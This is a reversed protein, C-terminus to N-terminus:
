QSAGALARVAGALTQVKAGDSSRGSDGDLQSALQTLGTQRSSGSAQEAETLSKRVSSIRSGSLGNSRELQDVYARALAFSPPWVFKPQGQVNLYDLHVTKAADIENQSLYASPTLELIDLGRVIESSVIVGNYWYASWTGGLMMRTSDIPGRDFFAIEKPHAADTWDFVSIGGQYWSQVMVDRGPIPILSGHHAVCNEMETQPAPMKYYSQFHLANNTITFIADAGWDKPDTARCKPQGGGGWEDSFLMKTGDNNFTASPWYSFNSDSAAYLRKPNVPDHIDLLMG